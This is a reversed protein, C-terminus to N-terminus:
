DLEFALMVLYLSGGVGAFATLLICSTLWMCGMCGKVQRLEKQVKKATEVAEKQEVAMKAMAITSSSDQGGEQAYALCQKVILAGKERAKDTSRGPRPEIFGKFPVKVLVGVEVMTKGEETKSAYVPYYVKGGLPAVSMFLVYGQEADMDELTVNHLSIAQAITNVVTKPEVDTQLSVTNSPKPQMPM